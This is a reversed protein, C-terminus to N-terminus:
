IWDRIFSKRKVANTYGEVFKYQIPYEYKEIKTTKTNHATIFNKFKAPTPQFKNSKQSMLNAPKQLGFQGNGAPTLLKDNLRSATSKNKKNSMFPTMTRFQKEMQDDDIIEGRKKYKNSGSENRRMIELVIQHKIKERVYNSMFDFSALQKFKDNKFSFKSLKDISPELELYSSHDSSIYNLGCEIMTNIISIFLRKNSHGDNHHNGRNNNDKYYKNNNDNNNFDNNNWRKSTFIIHPIMPILSLICSRLDYYRALIISYQNVDFSVIDDDNNKNNKNNNMKPSSSHLFTQVINLNDKYKLKNKYQNSPYKLKQFTDTACTQHVGIIMFPIYGMLIFHQKHAIIQKLHDFHMLWQSTNFTINFCPDTYGLNPYNEMIGNIIKDENGFNYIMSCIEKWTKNNENNIIDNSKRKLIKNYIDFINQTKDKRGIPINTLKDINLRSSLRKRNAKTSSKEKFFQLTHLCSRIDNNTINALYSLTKLDTHLYEKRCIDLLRKCLIRTSIPKFKYIKCIQTNSRLKRLSPAYENNCIGIIPKNILKKRVIKLIVDVAGNDGGQAGDIEDMIVLPPRKDGFLPKTTCKSVILDLLKKGSRDDSANIEFPRYGCHNAVIHALTSKGTGPPGCFLLVSIEPRAKKNKNRNMNTNMNKRTERRGFIPLNNSVSYVNKKKMSKQKNNHNNNKKNDNDMLQQRRSYKQGFTIYDWQKVWTTVERNIKESSCLDTIGKPAYKDVWLLRDIEDMEEEEKQQKENLLDDNPLMLENIEKNIKDNEIENLLKDIKFSTSQTGKKISRLCKKIDRDYKSQSDYYIYLKEGDIDNTIAISTDNLSPRSHLYLEDDDNNNINDNNNDDIDNDEDDIDFIDNNDNTDNITSTKFRKANPMDDMSRKRKRSRKLPKNENLIDMNLTNENLTDEDFLTDIGDNNDDNQNNNNQNLSQGATVREAIYSKGLDREVLLKM